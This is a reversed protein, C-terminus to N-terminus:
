MLMIIVINVTKNKMRYKIFHFSNCFLPNKELKLSIYSKLQDSNLLAYALAFLM